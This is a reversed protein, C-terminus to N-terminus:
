ATQGERRLKTGDFDWGLSQLVTIVRPFLECLDVWGFRHQHRHHVRCLPILNWEVDDGGAWKSKIHAPDCPTWGCAAYAKEHYTKLLKKDRKRIKKPIM